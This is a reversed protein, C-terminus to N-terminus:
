SEMYLKKKKMQSHREWIVAEMNIVKVEIENMAINYVSILKYDFLGM